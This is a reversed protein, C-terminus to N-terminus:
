RRASDWWEGVAQKKHEYIVQKGSAKVIWVPLGLSRTDADFTLSFGAFPYAKLGEFFTIVKEKTFPMKINKLAEILLAGAMYGELSNVDKVVGYRDMAESYDRLFQTDEAQPDPTTYSLLFNIGRSKCYRRTAESMMFSIGFPIRGIFFNPGLMELFERVPAHASFFIGVAEASAMKLKKVIDTYSAQERSYPIDVWKTIGRKVLAKHAAEALPTGFSDNQYVFAFSRVKYEKFVFDILAEAEEDYSARFHVINKMLGTRFIIAGSRPFLVALEGSKVHEIYTNLQETGQPIVFLDTGYVRKLKEANALALRPSNEDDLVIPKILCGQVGGKDNIQLIAGELGHALSMGAAGFGGFFAVTSGIAFVPQHQVRELDKQTACGIGMSLDFLKEEYSKQTRVERQHLTLSSLRWSVGALLTVFADYKFNIFDQYTQTPCSILSWHAAGNTFKLFDLGTPAKFLQKRQEGVIFAQVNVEKLLAPPLSSATCYVVENPRGQIVLSVVLPLTNFFDNISDKLGIHDSLPISKWHAWLKLPDSMAFSSEWVKDREQNGCIYIVQEPNKKILLAILELTQYSYASRNIADGLFIVFDNKNLLTLQESLLGLRKWERLDRLLSHLAGHIDGLLLTRSGPVIELRRATAIVGSMKKKARQTLEKLLPELRTFNWFDTRMGLAIEVSKFYTPRYREFFSNFQPDLLYQNNFPPYEPVLAAFTEWESLTDFVAQISVSSLLCLLFLKRLM